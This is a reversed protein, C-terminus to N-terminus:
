GQGLFILGQARGEAIGQKKRGIERVIDNVGGVKKSDV